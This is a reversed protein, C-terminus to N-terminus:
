ICTVTNMLVRCKRSTSEGGIIESVFQLTQFSVISRFVRQFCTSFLIQIEKTSMKFLICFNNAIFLFPIYIFFFYVSFRGPFILGDILPIYKWQWFTCIEGM